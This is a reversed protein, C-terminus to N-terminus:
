RLLAGGLLQLGLALLCVFFGRRFRAVSIRRRIRQGAGMGLLAPALAYLSDRLDAATLAHANALGLALALTSVTFSLGLAQILDEKSLDLAQLYPVAPIVFVGTTGTVLGTVIGIVPSLRREHEPRISLRWSRLGAIAYLALAAGLGAAAWAGTRASMWVAALLTGAAVGTMMTWLRRAIRAVGAGGFLQWLNTALSPLVLLAAAQAPPMLSGLVGMAVTPLGMGTVGKVLGAIAFTLAVIGAHLATSSTM